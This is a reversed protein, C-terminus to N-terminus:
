SHRTRSACHLRLTQTRPGPCPFLLINGTARNNSPYSEKSTFSIVRMPAPKAAPALVRDTDAAIEQVTFLGELKVAMFIPVAAEIANM